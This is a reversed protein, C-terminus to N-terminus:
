YTGHQDYSEYHGSLSMGTQFIKDTAGLCDNNESGEDNTVFQRSDNDSESGLIFFTKLSIEEAVILYSNINIIFNFLILLLSSTSFIKQTILFGKSKINPWIKPLPGLQSSKLMGRYVSNLWKSNASFRALFKKTMLRRVGATFEITIWSLESIDIFVTFTTITKSFSILYKM